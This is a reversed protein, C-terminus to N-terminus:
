EEKPKVYTLAQASDALGKTTPDNVVGLLALITFVAEVLKLLKNGLDGLDISFGFINAVVQVLLLSAPIICLWFTKNSLRVTWNIKM